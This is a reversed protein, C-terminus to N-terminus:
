DNWPQEREEAENGLRRNANNELSVVCDCLRLIDDKNKHPHEDNRKRQGDADPDNEAENRRHSTPVVIGLPTEPNEAIGVAAENARAAAM